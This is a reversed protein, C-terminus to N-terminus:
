RRTERFCNGSVPTRHLVSNVRAGSTTRRLNALVIFILHILSVEMSLLSM